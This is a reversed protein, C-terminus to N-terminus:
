DRRAYIRMQDGWGPATVIGSLVGAIQKRIKKWASERGIGKLNERRAEEVAERGRLNDLWQSRADLSRDVKNIGSFWGRLSSLGSTKVTVDRFGAQRLLATLTAPTFYCLHRSPEFYPWRKRLLRRSISNYNPTSLMLQGGPELHDHVWRLFELPHPEREMVDWAAVVNYRNDWPDRFIDTASVQLDFRERAFAAREKSWELGEVSRYHPRCLQLFHGWRCGIELLTASRKNMGEVKPMERHMREMHEAMKHRLMLNRESSLPSPERRLMEERVSTALRPSIYILSCSRCKRLLTPGLRGLIRAPLNGCAPCPTKELFDNDEGSVLLRSWFDEIPRAERAQGKGQGEPGRSGRRSPDRDNRRPWGRKHGRDHGNERDERNSHDPRSGRPRFRRKKM